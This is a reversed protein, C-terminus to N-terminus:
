RRSPRARDLVSRQWPGALTVTAIAAGPLAVLILMSTVPRPCEAMADPEGPRHGATQDGPMIRGAPNDGAVPAAAGAALRPMPGAGGAAYVLLQATVFATRFRTMATRSIEAARNDVSLLRGRPAPSVRVTPTGPDSSWGPRFRPASM